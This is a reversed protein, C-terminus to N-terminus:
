MFVKNIFSQLPIGTCIEDPRAAPLSNGGVNFYKKNIDFCLQMHWPTPCADLNDHFHSHVEYHTRQIKLAQMLTTQYLIKAYCGGVKVSVRM